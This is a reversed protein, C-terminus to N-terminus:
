KFGRTEEAEIVTATIALSTEDDPSAEIYIQGCCDVDAYYVAYGADIEYTDVVGRASGQCGTFRAYM